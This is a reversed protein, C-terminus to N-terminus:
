RSPRVGGISSPGNHVLETTLSPPLTDQVPAALPLSMQLLLQGQADVARKVVLLGSLTEFKVSRSHNQCEAPPLLCIFLCAPYTFKGEAM